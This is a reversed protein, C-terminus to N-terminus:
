IVEILKDDGTSTNIRYNIKTYIRDSTKLHKKKEFPFRRMEESMLMEQKAIV